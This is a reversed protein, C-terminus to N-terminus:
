LTAKLRRIAERVDGETLDDGKSRLAKTWEIADQRAKTPVQKQKELSEKVVPLLESWSTVVSNERQIHNVLRGFTWDKTTETMAAKHPFVEGKQRLELLFQQLLNSPFDVFVLLEEGIPDGGEGAKEYGELGALYGLLEGLEEDKVERKTIDFADATDLLIDKREGDDIGYYILKTM